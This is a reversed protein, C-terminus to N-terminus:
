ALAAVEVALGRACPQSSFHRPATQGYALAEVVLEKHLYGLEVQDIVRLSASQSDEPRSGSRTGFGHVVEGDLLKVGPDLLPTLDDPLVYLGQLLHLVSWTGGHPYPLAGGAVGNGITAMASEFLWRVLNDGAIREIPQM